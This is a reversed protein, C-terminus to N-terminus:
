RFHLVDTNQVYGGSAQATKAVALGATSGLAKSSGVPVALSQSSGGTVSFPAKHKRGGASLTVTGSCIGIRSGTCKVLVLADPGVLRATDRAFSLSMETPADFPASWAAATAPVAATALLAAACLTAGLRM